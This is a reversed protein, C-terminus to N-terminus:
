GVAAPQGPSLLLLSAVELGVRGALPNSRATPPRLAPVDVDVFLGAGPHTITPSAPISGAVGVTDLYHEGVSSIARAPARGATSNLEAFCDEDSGVRDTSVAGTRSRRPPPPFRVRTCPKAPGQRLWEAVGGSQRRPSAVRGPPAPWFCSSIYSRRGSPCWELPRRSEFGRGEGQCPSASGAASRGRPSSKKVPWSPRGAM